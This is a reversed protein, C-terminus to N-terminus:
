WTCHRSSDGTQCWHEARNDVRPERCVEKELGPGNAQDLRLILVNSAIVIVSCSATYM